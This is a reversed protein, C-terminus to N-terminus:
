DISMHTVWVYVCEFFHLSIGRKTSYSCILQNLISAFHTYEVEGEKILKQIHAWAGALLFVIRFVGLELLRSRAHLRPMTSLVFSYEKARDVIGRSWARELSKSYPTHLGEGRGPHLGGM